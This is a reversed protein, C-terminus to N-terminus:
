FLTEVDVLFWSWHHRFLWDLTMSEPVIVGKLVCILHVLKPCVCVVVKLADVLGKDGPLQLEPTKLQPCSGLSIHCRVM